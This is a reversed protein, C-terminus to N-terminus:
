FRKFVSSTASKGTGFGGPIAATGGKAIPFFTDIVRTGTILPKGPELRLSSPRPNRIPWNQVLTLDHITGNEDKIQAIVDDIRYKGSNKVNLVEGSLNPPLMIKTDIMETEPVVAYVQGGKLQDGDKIIIEVDWEKDKDLNMLGIGEPIFIPSLKQIEELPREIGDFMNKLLGPGLTASLPQGTSDIKEGVRLGETEEYVQITGKDGDLIIVEGILKKPGVTVMERMKFDSMNKGTIVPGNIGTIIGQVQEM